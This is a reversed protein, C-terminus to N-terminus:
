WLLVGCFHRGIHPPLRCLAHPAVTAHAPRGARVLASFTNPVHWSVTPGMRAGDFAVAVAGTGLLMMRLGCAEWSACPLSMGGRPFRRWAVAKLPTHRPPQLARVAAAAGGAARLAGQAPAAPACLRDRALQRAMQGGRGRAARARVGAAAAGVAAAMYVQGARCAGGQCSQPVGSGGCSAESHDSYSAEGAFCRAQKLM